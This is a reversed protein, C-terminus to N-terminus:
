DEGFKDNILRVLAEVAASADEGDAVIEITCGPGAALMMLGMISLGGAQQGKHTVDIGAHFTGALKVFKAAARAHLGLQNRITVQQRVAAPATVTDGDSTM